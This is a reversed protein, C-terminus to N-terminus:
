RKEQRKYVDGDVVMDSAFPLNDFFCDIDGNADIEISPFIDQSHPNTFSFAGLEPCSHQITQAIATHFIDENGARVIQSSKRSGNLCDKWFRFDLVTDNVLNAIGGAPPATSRM